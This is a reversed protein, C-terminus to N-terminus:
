LKELIMNGATWLLSGILLLFLLLATKFLFDSIFYRLYELRYNQSRPSADTLYSFYFCLAILIAMELPSTFNALLVIFGLAAYGAYRAASIELAPSM